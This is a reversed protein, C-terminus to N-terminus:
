NLPGTYPGCDARVLYYYVGSVSTKDVYSPDVTTGISSFNVPLRPDTARLLTYYGVDGPVGPPPWTFHADQLNEKVGSVTEILPPSTLCGGTYNATYDLVPCPNYGDCFDTAVSVTPTLTGDSWASFTYYRGDLEQPTQATVDFLYGSAWPFTWPGIYNVGDFTFNAYIHGSPGQTDFTYNDGITTFYVDDNVSAGAHYLRKNFCMGPYGDWFNFAVLTNAKAVVMDEEDSAKTMATFYWWSGSAFGTCSEDSADTAMMRAEGYESLSDKYRHYFALYILPHSSIGNTGLGIGDVTLSPYREDSLNDYFYGEQWNRPLNTPSCTIATCSNSGNCMNWALAVQYRAPDGSTPTDVPFYLDAAVVVRGSTIATSGGHSAAISSPGYPRTAAKSSLVTLKTFSALGAPYSTAGPHDARAYRVEHGTATSPTMVNVATDDIFFSTLYTADDNSAWFHIRVTQGAYEILNYQLLQYATFATKDTNDYQDLSALLADSTDRIEINLYDYPTTTGESSTIKLWLGLQASISDAPITVQQYMYDNPQPGSGGLWAKCTGTHVDTGSCSIDGSVRVTWSGDNGSEFGPNLLLQGVTYSDCNYSLHMSQTFITGGSAGCAIAPNTEAATSSPTVNVAALWRNLYIELDDLYFSTTLANDNTGEFYLRVTQGAYAAVSFTVGALLYSSYTAADLNSLSAVTKLDTGSTNKLKINLYDYPTSSTESTTIRLYFYLTAAGCDAPITINQYISDTHSITGGLLAKYNGSHASGTTIIGTDSSNWSVNGSEFGPNALAYVSGGYGSSQSAYIDYNGSGSSAEQEWVAVRYSTQGTTYDSAIDPNREMLMSTAIGLDWTDAAGGGLQSNESYVWIDHDTPSYAYEYVIFYRNPVTVTDIALKCNIIDVSYPDYLVAYLWWTCGDDPSVMLAVSYSPLTHSPETVTDTWLFSHIQWLWGDSDLAIDNGKEDYTKLDKLMTPFWKESENDYVHSDLIWGTNRKSPLFLQDPGSEEARRGEGSGGLRFMQGDAKRPRFIAPHREGKLLVGELNLLVSRLERLRALRDPGLEGGPSSGIIEKYEKLMISFDSVKEECGSLSRASDLTREFRAAISRAEDVTSPAPHPTAETGSPQIDGLEMSIRQKHGSGIRPSFKGAPRSIGGGDQAITVLPVVAAMVVLAGGALGMFLKRELFPLMM